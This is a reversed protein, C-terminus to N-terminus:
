SKLSGGRLDVDAVDLLRELRLGEYHHVTPMGESTRIAYASLEDLKYANQVFADICEKSHSTAFVQVDFREALDHVLKAFPRLLSYHIANEFEDILVVGGRAYAFLLGIHFIRQAGEGFQTLDPAVEFGAHAVRFRTFQSSGHGPAADVNQFGPDLRERIFKVVEDKTGADVSHNFLDVLFEMDHQVFPSSFVVPCLVNVSHVRTIRERQQFLHTVALQKQAGYKAEVELSTVYFTKDAVDDVDQENRIRVLATNDALSDFRGEIRIESGIQEAVWQAPPDSTIKARRYVVRLLEDIDNQSTLLHVAELITTKGTNNPGAFLNVRKLGKIALDTFRRYKTIDIEHYHSQRKINYPRRDIRQGLLTPQQDRAAFIGQLKKIASRAQGLQEDSLKTAHNFLINISENIRQLGDSLRDKVLVESSFTAESLRRTEDLTRLANEDHVIKALERVDTGTNIVSDTPPADEDDEQGAEEQSLWSFLRDVNSQNEPRNATDNWGIWRSVDRSRIIERFINYRDSTFQDGYDSRRYIDCLTLTKLISRLERKTVGIAQCVEDENWGHDSILSKLLRAQNVAPWRKKGTIHGLGMIVKHHADGASDYLVVPVADFITSDLNGLDIASDQYRRLLHKLTAVRRNGEVVVYKARALERVQIQDVPLWGNKKFSAILDSVDEANKGLLFSTTRRQIDPDAISGEGVVVYDAQDIFRYNNPDLYLQTLPVKRSRSSPPGIPESQSEDMEEVEEDAM